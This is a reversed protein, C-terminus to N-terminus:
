GSIPTLGTREDRPSKGFFAGYSRSFHSGSIFGTAVAIQTVSMTTQRLLLRARQLRLERYYGTPNKCLHQRFLRELQRPSLNVAQAVEHLSAPSEVYAEMHAIAALLKPHTIGTRYQIPMRQVDHPHRVAHHLMMEAVSVGLASGHDAAITNIMMDLPATGGSCTLRNRDQEFLTATINLEPFEEAFGEVNEWHITCRHGDLLGARALAIAGTCIGGLVARKASLTRLRRILSENNFREAGNGACVFLTGAEGAEGLSGAPTVIVGNSAAVPGGDLSFTTWRYLARGSLQNAARLPEIASSFAMMSFDPLLLFDIGSTEGSSQKEGM